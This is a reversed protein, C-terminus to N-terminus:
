IIILSLSLLFYQFFKPAIWIMGATMNTAAPIAKTVMGCANAVEILTVCFIEAGALLIHSTIEFTSL